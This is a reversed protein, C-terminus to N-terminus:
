IAEKNRQESEEIWVLRDIARSYTRSVEGLTSAGITAAVDSRPRQEILRMRLVTAQDQQLHHGHKRLLGLIDSKMM